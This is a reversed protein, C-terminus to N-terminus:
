SATEPADPKPRTLDRMLGEQATSAVLTGDETFFQGLNFGRANSASPSSTSYLLWEDARFERHFWISHDLSAVMMDKFSPAHVRVATSLLSLDSLYTLALRHVIPDDPLSGNM